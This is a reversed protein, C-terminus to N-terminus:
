RESLESVILLCLDEVPQLIETVGLGHFAEGKRWGLTKADFGVTSRKVGKEDAIGSLQFLLM